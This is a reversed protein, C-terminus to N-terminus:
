RILVNKFIGSILHRPESGSSIQHGKFTGTLLNNKDISLNLESDNKMFTYYDGKTAYTLGLYEVQNINSKDLPYPGDFILIIYNKIDTGALVQYQCWEDTPTVQVPVLAVGEYTASTAVGSYKIRSGNFTFDIAPITNNPVSDKKCGMFSLFTLSLFIILYNKM